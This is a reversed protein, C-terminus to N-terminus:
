RRIGQWGMKGFSRQMNVINSESAISRNRSLFNRPCLLRSGRAKREDEKGNGRDVGTNKKEKTKTSEIGREGGIKGTKKVISGIVRRNSNM